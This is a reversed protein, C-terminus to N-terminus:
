SENIITMYPYIQQIYVTKIERGTYMKSQNIEILEFTDRIAVHNLSKRFFASSSRIPNPTQNCKIVLYPDPAQNLRCIALLNFNWCAIEYCKTKQNKIKMHLLFFEMNVLFNKYRFIKTFDYYWNQSESSTNDNIM